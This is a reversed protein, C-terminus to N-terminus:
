KKIVILPYQGKEGFYHPFWEELRYLIRLWFRGGWEPQIVSRLFKVSVSRWVRIEYPLQDKMVSHFWKASTKLVFTGAPQKAIEGNQGNPQVDPPM